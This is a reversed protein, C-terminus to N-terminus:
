VSVRGQLGERDPAGRCQRPQSLVDLLSRARSMVYLTPHPLIVYACPEIGAMCSGLCSASCSPASRLFLGFSGTCTFVTSGVHGIRADIPKRLCM